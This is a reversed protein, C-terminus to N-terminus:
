LFSLQTDEVSASQRSETEFPTASFLKEAAPLFEKKWYKAYDLELNLAKAPRGGSTSLVYYLSMGFVNQKENEKMEDKIELAAQMYPALAKSHGAGTGAVDLLERIMSRKLRKRYVLEKDFHGALLKKKFDAIAPAVRGHELAHKVLSREFFVLAKLKDKTHRIHEKYEGKHSLGYYSLPTKRLFFNPQAPFFIKQFSGVIEVRKLLSAMNAGAIDRRAQTLMLVLKEEFVQKEMENKQIVFMSEHSYFVAEAMTKDLSAALRKMIHLSNERLAKYLGPLAFRSSPLALAKLITEMSTEALKYALRLSSLEVSNESLNESSAAEIKKQIEARQILREKLLAPLFHKKRHFTYGCPTGSSLNSEYVASVMAYPDITNLILSLIDSDSFHLVYAKSFLGGAENKGPLSSRRVFSKGAPRPACLGRSHLLPILLFDLVDAPHRLRELPLGLALSGLVSFRLGEVAEFIRYVLQSDKLNYKALAPKDEEFLREIEKVKQIGSLSIEKREGLISHAATDLKYNELPPYLERTIDMGELIARGPIKIVRERGSKPIFSIVSEDGIGLTFPLDLEEYKRLLFTFDFGVVNWGIFIQPNVVQVEKSFAELLASESSFFEISAQEAFGSEFFEEGKATKAEDLMLVKAYSSPAATEQKNDKAYLAISYLKNEATGTEIDISLMRLKPMFKAKKFEPDSFVVLTETSSLPQSIFEVCLKLHNRLLLHWVAGLDAELILEQNEREYEKIALQSRFFCARREHQEWDFFPRAITKYLLEFNNEAHESTKAEMAEMAEKRLFGILQPKTEKWIFARGDELIGYLRTEDFPYGAELGAKNGLYTDANIIYGKM